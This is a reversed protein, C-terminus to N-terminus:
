SRLRHIRRGEEARKEGAKSGIQCYRTETHKGPQKQGCTEPHHRPKPKQRRPVSYRVPQERLRIM